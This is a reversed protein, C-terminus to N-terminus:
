KIGDILEAPVRVVVEDDSVRHAIEPFDARKGILIYSGDEARFIAPCM